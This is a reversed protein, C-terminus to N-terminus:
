IPIPVFITDMCIAAKFIMRKIGEPEEIKVDILFDGAHYLTSVDCYPYIKLIEGLGKGIFETLRVSSEPLDRFSIVMQKEACETSSVANKKRRFYKFIGM